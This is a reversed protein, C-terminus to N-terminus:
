LRVLAWFQSTPTSAGWQLYLYFLNKFLPNRLSHRGSKKRLNLVARLGLALCDKQILRKSQVSTYFIRRHMSQHLLFLHESGVIWNEIMETTHLSESFIAVSEFENWGSRIWFNSAEGNKPSPDYSIPWFPHLSFWCYWQNASRRWISRNMVFMTRWSNNCLSGM